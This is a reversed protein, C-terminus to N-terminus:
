GGSKPEPINFDRAQKCTKETGFDNIDDILDNTFFQSVDHIKDGLRMVM